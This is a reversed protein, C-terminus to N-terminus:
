DRVCRLSFGYRKNYNTRYMGGFYYHLYRNWADTPVAESSSWWGGYEGDGGYIEIYVFVGNSHRYGGPFGTFGSENTGNGSLGPYDYWGTTAKMKKGVVSEGGLYAILTTWEEDTPVHWGAPCLGRPDAVTYWNYLKGYPIDYDAINSNHCWAGTSLGEWAADDTVNPIVSGDAYKTTRLNEQMWVQTGITVTRYTNGDIDSVTGSGTTSCVQLTGVDIDGGSLILPLPSGPIWPSANFPQITVNNGCASLSFRGDTGSFYAQGNAVVYGTPLPSNNCDSLRGTVQTLINPALQIPRLTTAATFPGIEAMYVNQYAGNTGCRLSVVISLPVGAPVYGGFYGSSSTYDSACGSLGSGSFSSHITVKACEVGVDSADTVRGNLMVVDMPVDCNWFSFHSVNTIYEGGQRTAKGERMWLGKNEDFYWLDIEAPAKAQLTISLPFRVQATTGGALEVPNGSNDTLEVAVMGYSTLYRSNEGDMGLLTGPMESDFHESEPDIYNLAVNVQGNFPNGNQVFGGGTFTISVGEAQVTGGTAAAVTGATNKRLLRISVTNAGGTPLFTRSGTFYGAKSATVTGLREYVSANGIYFVGNNDSIVTSSGVWVRVGALPQGDEDAVQGALAVQEMAGWVPNAPNTPDLPEDIKCAPITLLFATSVALAAVAMLRICTNM